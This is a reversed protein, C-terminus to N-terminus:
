FQLEENLIYKLYRSIEELSYLKFHGYFFSQKYLM